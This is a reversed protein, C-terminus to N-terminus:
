FTSNISITVSAVSPSDNSFDFFNNENKKSKASTIISAFPVWVLSHITESVFVFMM